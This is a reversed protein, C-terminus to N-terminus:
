PMDVKFLADLAKAAQVATALCSSDEPIDITKVSDRGVVVLSSHIAAESDKQFRRLALRYLNLQLGYKEKLESEPEDSFKYDVIHWAGDAARFLLDMTGDVILKTGGDELLM